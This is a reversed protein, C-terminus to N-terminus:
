AKERRARWHRAPGGGPQVWDSALSCPLGALCEMFILRRPCSCCPFPLSHIQFPRLVPCPVSWERNRVSRRNFEAKRPSKVMRHKGERPAETVHETRGKGMEAHAFGELSM